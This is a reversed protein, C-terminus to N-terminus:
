CTRKEEWRKRVQRIIRDALVGLALGIFMGVVVDTPYHVYFYLRTAAMIVAGALAVIGAKRNWMWIASAAAFSSMSHGSPFSFDKPNAILLPIEPHRWCPRPRAVLPKLTLNGVLLSFLLAILVTIGLWRTKRGVLLLLGILIWIIGAEGLTTIVEFIGSLIDNQISQFWDLLVSDFWAVM